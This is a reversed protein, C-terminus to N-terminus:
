EACAELQIRENQVSHYGAGAHIFIACLEVGMRGGSVPLDVQGDMDVRTLASSMPTVDM